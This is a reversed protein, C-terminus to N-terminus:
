SSSDGSYYRVDDLRTELIGSNKAFENQNIKPSLEHNTMVGLVGVSVTAGGNKTTNIAIVDPM